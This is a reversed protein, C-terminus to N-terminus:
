AGGRVRERGVDDGGAEWAGFGIVSIEPGKSGLQEMRM